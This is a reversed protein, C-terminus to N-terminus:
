MMREDTYHVHPIRRPCCAGLLPTSYGLPPKLPFRASM